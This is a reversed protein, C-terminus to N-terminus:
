KAEKVKTFKLFFNQKFHGTKYKKKKINPQLKNCHQLAWIGVAHVCLLTSHTIDWYFSLTNRDGFLDSTFAPAKDDAGHKSQTATCEM